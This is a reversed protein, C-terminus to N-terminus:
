WRAPAADVEAIGAREAGPRSALDEPGVREDRPDFVSLKLPAGQWDLAFCASPACGTAPTARARATTYAFTATSCSFRWRRRAKRSCSCSSKPTRAPPARSCRARDPLASSSSRRMAELAVRACSPSASASARGAQYLARYARLEAEIEDNGPLAETDARARAPAGGQAQRARLRRHRGRGHHARRRGRHARAHRRATRTRSMRPQEHPMMGAILRMSDGDRRM